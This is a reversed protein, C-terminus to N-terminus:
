GLQWTPERPSLGIELEGATDEMVMCGKGGKFIEHDIEMDFCITELDDIGFYEILYQRLRSKDFDM